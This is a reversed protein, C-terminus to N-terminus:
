KKVKKGKGVKPNPKSITPKKGLAAYKDKLTPKTKQLMKRKKLQKKEVKGSSLAYHRLAMLLGM